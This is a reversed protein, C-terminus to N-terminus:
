VLVVRVAEAQGLLVGDVEELVDQVGGGLLGAKSKTELVAAADDLIDEGVNLELHVLLAGLVALAAVEGGKDLGSLGDEM